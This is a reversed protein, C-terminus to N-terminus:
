NPSQNVDAFAMVRRVPYQVQQRCTIAGMGWWGKHRIPQAQDSDAVRRMKTQGTGCRNCQIPDLFRNVIQSVRTIRRQFLNKHRQAADAPRKLGAFVSCHLM